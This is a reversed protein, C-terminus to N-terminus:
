EEFCEITFVVRGPMTKGYAGDSYCIDSQAPEVYCVDTLGKSGWTLDFEIRDEPKAKALIAQLGKVTLKM